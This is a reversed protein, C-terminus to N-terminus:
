ANRSDAEVETTAGGTALRYARQWATGIRGSFYALLITISLMIVCWGTAQHGTSRTTLELARLVQSQGDSLLLIGLLMAYATALGLTVISVVWVSAWDPLQCLYVAYGIQIGGLLFLIWAWRPIGTSEVSQFHQVVDLVAPAIGFLAAVALAAALYYVTWRKDANHEYGRAPVQDAAPPAEAAANAQTRRTSDALQRYRDRAVTKARAVLSKVKALPAAALSRLANDVQPEGSEGGAV